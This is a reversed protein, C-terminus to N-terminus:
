QDHVDSQGPLTQLFPNLDIDDSLADADHPPEGLERWGPDFVFATAQGVPDNIATIRPAQEALEVVYLWAKERNDRAFAFQRPSINPMGGPGWEGVLSKVEIYRVITGDDDSSEVDYGPNDHPMELPHRGNSREHALVADVGARGIALRRAQPVTQREPDDGPERGRGSVIVRWWESPPVDSPRPRPGGTTTAGRGGSSTQGGSSTSGGSSGAPRPRAPQRGAGGPAGEAPEGEGPEGEGPEGEDVEDPSAPVPEEEPAQALPATDESGEEDAGHGSPEAASMPVSATLRPISLRDLYDDAEEATDLGLVDRLVALHSPDADLAFALERAIDVFRMGGLEGDVYVINQERAWVAGVDSVEFSIRPDPRFRWTVSLGPAARLELQDLRALGDGVGASGLASELLRAVQPRRERLLRELPRHATTSQASPAAVLQESVPTVGAAQLAQWSASPRTILTPGLEPRLRAALQPRDDAFAEPPRLLEQEDDLVCRRDGLAANIEKAEIDGAGLSLELLQWCHAVIPPRDGPALDHDLITALVRLADHHDPHPRVGIKELLPRWTNWEHADLRTALPGLGHEDWFAEHPPIWSGDRRRLSPFDRLEAIAPDDVATDLRRYIDPHAGSGISSCHRLHAVVLATSPEIRVDLVDLVDAADNHIRPPADLFIAQSEFLYARQRRYIAEPAHWGARDGTAPLWETTFLEAYDSTLRAQIAASRTSGAPVPEAAILRLIEHIVAVAADDPPRETLEHVRELVHHPRPRDSVGLDFLLEAAVMPGDYTPWSAGLVVTTAEGAFLAESPPLCRGGCPVFSLGALTQVMRQDGVVEERHEALTRLLAHLWGPVGEGAEALAPPLQGEVYERLTLRPIELVAALKRVDEGATTDLVKAIEAQDVFAGAKSDTMVLESLGVFHRASGRRTPFIPLARLRATLGDHERWGDRRDHFWRVVELPQAIEQADSLADLADAVGVVRALDALRRHEGLTGDDLFCLDSALLAKTTAEGRWVESWCRLSGDVCPATPTNALLSEANNVAAAATRGLLRSMLAWLTQLQAADLAIPAGTLTRSLTRASLEEMGIENRPLPRVLERVDPALVDVGLEALVANAVDDDPSPLFLLAPLAMPTGDARPAIQATQVEPEISTWLSQLSPDVAAASTRHVASILQWTPVVGIRAPLEGLHESLTDGVACLAARNWGARIGDDLNITRRSSHPFFDASVLVTAPLREETPLVAYLRGETLTAGVLVEIKSSRKPEIPADPLARLVAAAEDFDGVLRQLELVEDGPGHLRVRDDDRECRFACVPRGERLLEIRRVRRLFPLADRLSAALADAIGDPDHRAEQGLKVRLDSGVEAWPLRLVTGSQQECTPCGDCTRVRDEANAAEPCLTIHLGASIIEPRDTVQYVATFGIGFAGTTDDRGRKTESAVRLFAHVDCRPERRCDKAVAGCFSFVGDNSVVVADERVDFRMSTAGPHDGEGAADDANQILEHALTEYGQLDTLVKALTGIFDAELTFPSMPVM